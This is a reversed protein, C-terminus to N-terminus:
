KCSAKVPPKPINNRFGALYPAALWPKYITDPKIGTLGGDAKVLLPNYGQQNWIPRTQVWKDDPDKFVNIGKISAAGGLCTNAGVVIRARGGGTVDAIVPTERATYSDHDATYIEAGTVGDFIHLHTEDAYVVQNKGSGSFDFTTSGTIESSHDQTPKTWLLADISFAMYSDRGATGFKLVGDGSFDAVNIPGGGSQPKTVSSKLSCDKGDYILVKGSAVGMIMAHDDTAHMIGYAPDEIATAFTCVVSGDKGSYIGNSTIIELGPKGDVDGVVAFGNGAVKFKLKATKGDYVKTGAVIETNGDLALDAVALGTPWITNLNDFVPETSKYKEKGDGDLVHLLNDIGIAAISMTGDNALDGIAPPLWSRVQLSSVWKQTGDRGDIAFLYGVQSVDGACDKFGVAIISPAADAAKLKGVIPTAVVQTYAAMDGSARWNYQLALKTTAAPLPTIDKCESTIVGSSDVSNGTLTDGVRGEGGIIPKTSDVPSTSVAGSTATTVSDGSTGTSTSTGTGKGSRATIPDHPDDTSPDPTTTARDSAPSPKTSNTHTAASFQSSSCGIIPQMLVALILHNVHRAGTSQTKKVKSEEDNIIAETVM